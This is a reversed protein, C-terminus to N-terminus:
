IFYFIEKYITITVNDIADLIPSYSTKAYLTLLLNM